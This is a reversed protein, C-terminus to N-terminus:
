RCSSVVQWVLHVPLRELRVGVPGHRMSWMKGTCIMGHHWGDMEFLGVDGRQAPSGMRPPGLVDCVAAVAGGFDYLTRRATKKDNYLDRWPVSAAYGNLEAWGLLYLLCDSNETGYEFAKSREQEIYLDLADSPRTDVRQSIMPWCM